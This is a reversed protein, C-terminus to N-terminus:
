YIRYVTQENIDISDIDILEGTSADFEEEDEPYEIYGLFVMDECKKVLEKLESRTLRISATHQIAAEKAEEVSNFPQSMEGGDFGDCWYFKKM